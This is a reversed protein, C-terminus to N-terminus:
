ASLAEEETAYITCFRDLTTIEFVSRVRTSLHCLALTGHYGNVRRFVEVLTGLGSSDMYPVDKLNVVLREPHQECAQVLTKPVAPTRHLDVEGSLAVITANGERRIDNLTNDAQKM